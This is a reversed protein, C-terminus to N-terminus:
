RKTLLDTSMTGRCKADTTEPITVNTTNASKAITTSDTSVNDIRDNLALVAKQLEVLPARADFRTKRNDAEHKQEKLFRDTFQNNLDAKFQQEEARSQFDRIGSRDRLFM